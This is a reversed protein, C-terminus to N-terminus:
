LCTFSSLGKAGSALSSQSILSKKKITISVPINHLIFIFQNINLLLLHPPTTQVLPPLCNFDPSITHMRKQYDKSPGCKTDIVTRQPSKFPPPCLRSLLNCSLPGSSTGLPTPTAQQHAAETQKVLTCGFAQRKDLGGGARSLM